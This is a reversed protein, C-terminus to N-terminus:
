RARATMKQLTGLAARLAEDVDADVSDKVPVPPAPPIHALVVPRAPAVPVPDARPAPMPVPTSAARLSLGREFRDALETVSLGELSPRGMPRPSSVLQPAPRRIVAAAAVAAERVLAADDLPEPAQPMRYDQTAMDPLDAQPTPAVPETVDDPRDQTVPSPAKGVLDVLGLDRVAFIPQRAPADPHADQRRLSPVGDDVHRRRGLGTLKSFAFGMTGSGKNSGNAHGPQVTVLAVGMAVGGAVGALLLRATLGYPPAAAPLMDALGTLAMGHEIIGVPVTAAAIAGGIGALGAMLHTASLRKHM